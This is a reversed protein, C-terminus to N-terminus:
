WVPPIVNPPFTMYVELRSTLPTDTAALQMIRSYIAPWQPDSATPYTYSQSESALDPYMTAHSLAFVASVAFTFTGAHIPWSSSSSSSSGSAPPVLGSQCVLKHPTPPTTNATPSGKQLAVHYFDLLDAPSPDVPETSGFRVTFGFVWFGVHASGQFPPGSLNLTAGIEVNIHLTVFLLDLTFRVGVSVGGSAQFSFPKYNILFDAYANLFAQLVGISQNANICAGAM